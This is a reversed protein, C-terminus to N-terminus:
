KKGGHRLFNLCGKKEWQKGGAAFESGDTFKVKDGRARVRSGPNDWNM